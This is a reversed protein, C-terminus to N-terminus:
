DNEIYPNGEPFWPCGKYLSFDEPLYEMEKVRKIPCNKLHSKLAQKNKFFGGCHYCYSGM